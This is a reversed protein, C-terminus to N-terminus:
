RDKYNLEYEIAILGIFMLIVSYAILGFMALTFWDGAMFFTRIEAAYRTYKGILATAFLVAYIGCVVYFIPYQWKVFRYVAYSAKYDWSTKDIENSM